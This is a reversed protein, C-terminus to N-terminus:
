PFTGTINAFILERRARASVHGDAWLINATGQHAERIRYGGQADLHGRTGLGWTSGEKQSDLAIITQSPRELETSRRLPMPDSPMVYYNVVYPYGEPHVCPAQISVSSNTPCYSIKDLGAQGGTYAALGHGNPRNAVWPKYWVGGWDLPYYGGVAAPFQQQHDARYLVIAGGLDRLRAICTSNRSGETLKQFSPFAVALLVAIIVAAILLETVTAAIRLDNRIKM